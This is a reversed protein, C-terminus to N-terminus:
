QPPLGNEAHPERSMINDANESWSLVIAIESMTTWLRSRGDGLQSCFLGLKVTM